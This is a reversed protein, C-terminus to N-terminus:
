IGADNLRAKISNITNQDIGYESLINNVYNIVFEVNAVAKKESEIPTNYLTPTGEFVPSTTPAYYSSDKGNLTRADAITTNDGAVVHGYENVTVNNYTGPVVGSEPHSYFNANEAIKGLKIKDDKSMLGNKEETACKADVDGFSLKNDWRERDDNSVHFYQMELHNFAAQIHSAFDDNLDALDIKDRNSNFHQM